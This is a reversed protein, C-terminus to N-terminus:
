HNPIYDGVKQDPFEFWWLVTANISNSNNTYKKGRYIDLLAYIFMKSWTRSKVGQM